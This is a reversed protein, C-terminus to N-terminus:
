EEVKQTPHSQSKQDGGENGDGGKKENERVNGGLLTVLKESKRMTGKMRRGEIDGLRV